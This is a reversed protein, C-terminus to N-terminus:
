AWPQMQIAQNLTTEEDLLVKSVMLWRPQSLSLIGTVVGARSYLALWKGEEDSGAVKVIDDGPHPHGLMQIKKGYQDSWFYPVMDPAKEGKAWHMSLAAAHDTAIQWHEIRTLEGKFPFKAVDGIAAITPTALLNEDVVVGGDLSLGSTKLWETNVEAGVGLIVAAVDLTSGDAFIVSGNSVDRIEQSTRLEIEANPALPLLWESAQEGLVGILPRSLGELVVQHLGRAKLATAAEAGIFGGGIVAVTSGEPVRTLLANLGEIDDRNRITHVLSEDSFSLRRARTGTAIVIHTGSVTEGNELTVTHTSVDLSKAPVGLISTINANELAEDSALLTKDVEWKGSLVQKSLPPRDYPAYPEDGILTIKGVYGDRRLSEIFRWGALGAGVVVIHDNSCLTM